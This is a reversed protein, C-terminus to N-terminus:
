SVLGIQTVHQAWRAATSSSRDLRYHHHLDNCVDPLLASTQEPGMSSFQTRISEEEALAASIEELAASIRNIAGLWQPQLARAVHESEQCKAQTWLDQETQARPGIEELEDELKAILIPLLRLKPLGDPFAALMEESLWRVRDDNREASSMQSWQLAYRHAKLSREKIRVESRFQVWREQAQLFNANSSM